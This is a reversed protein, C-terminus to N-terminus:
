NVDSMPWVSYQVKNTTLAANTNVTGTFRLRGNAGWPVTGNGEYLLTHSTASLAGSKLVNTINNNILFITWTNSAADARVAISGIAVREAGNTLEFAVATDLAVTVNGYKGEL